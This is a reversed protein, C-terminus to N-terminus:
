TTQSVRIINSLVLGYFIKKRDKTLDFKGIPGQIAQSLLLYAKKWKKINETEDLINSIAIGCEISKLISSCGTLLFDNEIENNSDISWPITGNDQQLDVSFNIALEISSWISKM